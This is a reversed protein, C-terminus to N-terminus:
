LSHEFLATLHHLLRHSHEQLLFRLRVQVKFTMFSLKQLIDKKL